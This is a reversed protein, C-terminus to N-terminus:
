GPYLADLDPLVPREQRQRTALLSSAAQENATQNGRSM